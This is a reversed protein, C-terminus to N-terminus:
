RFSVLLTVATLRADRYRPYTCGIIRTGALSTQDSIAAAGGRAYSRRQRGRYTIEEAPPISLMEARDQYGTEMAKPRARERKTHDGAVTGCWLTRGSALARDFIAGIQMSHSAYPPARRRQESAPRLLDTLQQFPTALPPISGGVGAKEPSREALEIQRIRNGWVMM